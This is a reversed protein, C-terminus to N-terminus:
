INDMPRRGSVSFTNGMSTITNPSKLGYSIAGPNLAILNDFSRGNLPLDKIERESVLGSVSSTTTNVIPTEGVVTIQQVLEGVELELNVVAEQGVALDVGSRVAVKFGTKEAKLEQQGVPLSLVRFNGDPDTTVSRTAGTDISKVTITTGGVPSGSADKVRGSIAATVQAYLLGPLLLMVGLLLHKRALIRM